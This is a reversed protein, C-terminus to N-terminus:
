DSRVQDAQAIIAQSPALRPDDPNVQHSQSIIAQSAALPPDDPNVQLPLSILVKLCIGHWMYNHSGWTGVIGVLCPKHRTQDLIHSDFTMNDLSHKLM